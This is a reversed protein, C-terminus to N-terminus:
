GPRKLGVADGDGVDFVDVAAGRVVEDGIRADGSGRGDGAAAARVEDGHAGRGVDDAVGIGRFGGAAVPSSVTLLKSASRVVLEQEVANRAEGARHVEHGGAHEVSRRRRRMGFGDQRIEAALLLQLDVDVAVAHDARAVDGDDQVVERSGQAVGVERDDRGVM